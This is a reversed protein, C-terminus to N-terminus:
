LWVKCDTQQGFDVELFSTDFSNFDGAIVIVPLEASHASLTLLSELDDSLESKLVSDCYRAKPPHYCAAIYYVTDNCDCEVWLVETLERQNDANPTIIKSCIDNRVYIAVGGGKKNQRDKRLTYLERIQILLLCVNSYCQLFKRLIRCYAINLL